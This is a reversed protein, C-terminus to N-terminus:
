VAAWARLETALAEPQANIFSNVKREDRDSRASPLLMNRAALFQILRKGRARRQSATLTRIDDEPIPAEAGLWALLVRIARLSSKQPGPGWRQDLMYSQFDKILQQAAPTLAPLEEIPLSGIIEWDRPQHFLPEQGPILLHPSRPPRPKALAPRPHAWRRQDQPTRLQVWHIKLNFTYPKGLTLQRCSQEPTALPNHSLDLCCGRCLGEWCPVECNGCRDCRQAPFRHPRDRFGRCGPCLQAFGWAQCDLCSQPRPKRLPPHRSSTLLAANSKTAM